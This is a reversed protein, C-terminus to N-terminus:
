KNQKDHQSRGFWLAEQWAIPVMPFCEILLPANLQSQLTEVYMPSTISYQVIKKKFRFFEYLDFSFM